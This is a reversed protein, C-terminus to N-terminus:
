TRPPTQSFIGVAKKLIDREQQLRHLERKLQRIQEAEPLADSVAAEGPAYRHIWDRLAGVSVGLDRAVQKRPHGEETVLRVAERRFDEPYTTRPM